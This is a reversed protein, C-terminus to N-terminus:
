HWIQQTFSWQPEKVNMGKRELRYLPLDLRCSAHPSSYDQKGIQLVQCSTLTKFGTSWGSSVSDPHMKTLSESSQTYTLVYSFAALQRRWRSVLQEEGRFFPFPLPTTKFIFEENQRQIMPVAPIETNEYPLAYHITPLFSNERRAM